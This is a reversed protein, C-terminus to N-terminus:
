LLIKKNMLYQQLRHSPETALLVKWWAQLRLEMGLSWMISTSFGVWTKMRIWVQVSNCIYLLYIFKSSFSMTVAKVAYCYWSIGQNSEEEEATAMDVITCTWLMRLLDSPPLISSHNINRSLERHFNQPKNLWWHSILSMFPSSLM